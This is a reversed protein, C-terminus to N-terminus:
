ENETMIGWWKMTCKGLNLETNKGFSGFLDGETATIWHIELVREQNPNTEHMHNHYNKVLQPDKDKWFFDNGLIDSPRSTTKWDLQQISPGEIKQEDWGRIPEWGCSYFWLKKSDGYNLHLM